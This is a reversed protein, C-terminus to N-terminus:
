APTTETPTETTPAPTEPTREPQAALKAKQDEVVAQMATILENSWKIRDTLDGQLSTVDGYQAKDKNPEPMIGTRAYREIIYNVDTPGAASQDCMSEGGGPTQVRVREYPTRVTRM